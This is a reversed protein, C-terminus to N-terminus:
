RNEIANFMVEVNTLPKFIAQAGKIPHEVHCAHCHDYDHATGNFITKTMNMTM